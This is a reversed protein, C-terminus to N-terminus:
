DEIICNGVGQFDPCQMVLHTVNEVIGLNSSSCLNSTIGADKCGRLPSAHCVLRALLEDMKSIRVM